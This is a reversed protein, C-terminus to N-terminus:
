GPLYKIVDCYSQESLHQAARSMRDMGKISRPFLHNQCYKRQFMEQEVQNWKSSIFFLKPFWIQEKLNNLLKFVAERLYRITSVPNLKDKQHCRIHCHVVNQIERKQIENERINELYLTMQSCVSCCFSLVTQKPLKSYMWLLIIAPFVKILMQPLTITRSHERSKPPLIRWSINRSLLKHGFIIHVYSLGTELCAKLM